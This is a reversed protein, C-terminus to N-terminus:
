RADLAEQLQAPTLADLADLLRWAFEGPRASFGAAAEGAAALWAHATIVAEHPSLDSARAAGVCAATLAGLVCGTGTVRQLVPTGGPVRAEAGDPAAVLDVAGSVAVVAGSRRAVERAAPGAADVPDRADAGTHGSAAGGLVLAESANCRVAAPGQALLSLALPTRVPARGIANPDLVWPVGAARAAEVTPPIGALGDTSLTGLNVLLAAAAGVVAPAEAATETMMPRAGAALLANAVYNMSVAATLCHVLPRGGRVADVVDAARVRGSM